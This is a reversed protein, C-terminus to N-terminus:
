GGVEGLHARREAAKAEAVHLQLLEARRVVDEDADALLRAAVLRLLSGDVLYAPREALVDGIAADLHDTRAHRALQQGVADDSQHERDEADQDIEPEPE